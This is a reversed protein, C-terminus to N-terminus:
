QAQTRAPLMGYIFEKWESSSGEDQIDRDIENYFSFSTEVSEVDPTGALAFGGARGFLIM